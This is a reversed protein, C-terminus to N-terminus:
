IVPFLPFFLREGVLKNGLAVKFRGSPTFLTEIDKRILLWLWSLTEGELSLRGTMM